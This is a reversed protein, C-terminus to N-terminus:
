DFDNFMTIAKNIPNNIFGTKNAITKKTSEAPPLTASEPAFPVKSSRV